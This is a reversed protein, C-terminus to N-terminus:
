LLQDAWPFELPLPEPVVMTFWAHFMGLYGTM